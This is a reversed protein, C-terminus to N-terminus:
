FVFVFCACLSLSRSFSSFSFDCCSLLCPSCLYATFLALFSFFIRGVFIFSSNRCHLHLTFFGGSSPFRCSPNFTQFFFSMLHNNFSRFSIFFLLSTLSPVALLTFLLFPCFSNPRTLHSQLCHNVCISFLLENEAKIVLFINLLHNPLIRSCYNM